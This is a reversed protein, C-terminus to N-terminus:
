CLVEERSKLICKPPEIREKLASRARHLRSMVTGIPIHYVAAIDAYSHEDMRMLFPGKFIDDLANIAAMQKDDLGDFKPVIVLKDSLDDSTFTLKNKRLENIWLRKMVMSLWAAMNTGLKYKDANALARAITDQVLDEADHHNHTLHRAFRGLLSRAKDLEDIFARNM